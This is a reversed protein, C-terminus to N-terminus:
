CCRTAAVAVVVVVVVGVVVVIAILWGYAIDFIGLVISFLLSSLLFGLRFQDVLYVRKPNDSKM